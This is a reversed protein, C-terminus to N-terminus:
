IVIRLENMAKAKTEDVVHGYLNMTMGFDAHGLLEQVTRPNIGTEICRTAFTARFAHMTFRELGARKCIRTIERDASPSMLLGREPAKFLREHIDIVKDGDLLRNIMKQHEIIERIADNVPIQRRGKETKASDGIVYGGTEMRTITKEVHIKGDRIDSVYLAGIEGCRMGTNIAFRFADFYFSDAAEEFFAKTEEVTLARHITNRAQEEIRKLPKVLKCPNYEIRREDIATRFVHSLHAIADNVSRTMKGDAVLAKQVERIDDVSIEELKLDGLRSGASEIRVNACAHYQKEQQYLTAEKISGRRNETWREYYVDLTPHERLDRGSKLGLRKEQEKEDLEQKTRGYVFYRKGKYTFTRTMRGDARKKQRSM